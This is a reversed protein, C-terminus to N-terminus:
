QKLTQALQGNVLVVNEKRGLRHEEDRQEMADVVDRV